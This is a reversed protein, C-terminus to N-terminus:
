DCGAQFLGQFCVFDVIDFDGDADCDAAPAAEKWAAQFAVFDLVDLAGDANIDASCTAAYVYVAGMQEGAEGDYPAAVVIQEGALRAAEAYQDHEIWPGEPTVEGAARWRGRGDREYVHAAGRNQLNPDGAAALLLRGPELDVATGLFVGAEFASDFTKTTVWQGNQREFVVAASDLGFLAARSTPAGVVMTDGLVDIAWGFKDHSMPTERVVQQDLTWAGDVFRYVYVTGTEAYVGYKEGSVAITAGDFALNRGFFEYAVLGEPVIKDVQSWGDGDRGFVYVAGALEGAQEDGIASVVMTDGVLAVDSGFLAGPTVDDAQVKSQFAWEGDERREYVFVAGAATGGASHGVAGVALTDGWVAVNKGAYNLFGAGPPMIKVVESWAGGVREYVYAAGASPAVENDYGAGIVMTDAHVALDTGVSGWQSADVPMIKDVEVWQALAASSTAFVIPLLRLM